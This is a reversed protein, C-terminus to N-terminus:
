PQSRRQPSQEHENEDVGVRGVQQQQRVQYADTRRELTEQRSYDRDELIRQERESFSKLRDAAPGAIGAQEAEAALRELRQRAEHRQGREVMDLVEDQVTAQHLEVWADQVDLNM